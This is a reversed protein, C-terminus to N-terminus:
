PTRLLWRRGNPLRTVRCGDLVQAARSTSPPLFDPFADGPGVQGQPAVAQEDVEAAMEENKDQQSTSFIGCPSQSNGACDVYDSMRAGTEDDRHHQAPREEGRNQVLSQDIKTGSGGAVQTGSQWSGAM